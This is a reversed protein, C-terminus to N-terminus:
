SRAVLGARRLLLWIECGLCFGFAANLFAAVFAAAGAVVLAWPVGVLHLVLGIGVVTLGVGQAFRPPRPDELEAPPALRPQVVKRYLLAIPQTAASALSWAFLLATILLVIFGPGSARQGVTQGAVAGPSSGVLSLAVGILLLVSTIAAGFRPGRPDIGSPGSQAASINTNM